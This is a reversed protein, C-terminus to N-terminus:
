PEASAGGASTPHPSSPPRHTGDRGGQRTMGAMAVPLRDVEWLTLGGFDLRDDVLNAPNPAAEDLERVFAACWEVLLARHEAGAVM